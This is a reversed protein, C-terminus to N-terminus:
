ENREGDEREIRQKIEENTEMRKIEDIVKQYLAVEKLGAYSNTGADLQWFRLTQILESSKIKM